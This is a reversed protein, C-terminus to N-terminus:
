AAASRLASALDTASEDVVTHVTTFDVTTSLAEDLRVDRGFVAVATHDTSNAATAAERVYEEQASRAQDTISSSRDLLFLVSRTGSTQVLLPQALALVLLVVGISRVVTAVRHQRPSVSRRGHRAIVVVLAVAPPIALLWWPWLIRM